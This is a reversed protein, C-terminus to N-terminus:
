TKRVMEKIVKFDALQIGIDPNVNVNFLYGMDDFHCSGPFKKMNENANKFINLKGDFDFRYLFTKGSAKANTRTLIARQIAHWFIVDASWQM